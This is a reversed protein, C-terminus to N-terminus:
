MMGLKSAIDSALNEPALKAIAKKRGKTMVVTKLDTVRVNFQKEIADAIEKKRYKRDVIFVLKNEMEVMNMSKETLHPYQLIKWPSISKATKEVAKAEKKEAEPKKEEAM